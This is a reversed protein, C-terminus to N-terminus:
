ILNADTYSVLTKMYNGREYASPDASNERSVSGKAQEVSAYGRAELWSTVEHLL